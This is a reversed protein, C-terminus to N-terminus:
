YLHPIEHQYAVHEGNIEFSGIRKNKHKLCVERGNYIIECNKKEHNKTKFVMEAITEIKDHIDMGKINTNQEM